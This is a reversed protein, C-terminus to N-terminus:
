TNRPPAAATAGQPASASQGPGVPATAAAPTTPATAPAAGKVNQKQRKGMTHRATRTAARKVVAAAKTAETSAQRKPNSFGFDGLVGDGSGLQSLVLTKLSDLVTNGKAIAAHQAATAEHFAKEAAVAADISAMAAQLTAIVDKPATPTGGLALTPTNGFHKQIGAIAQRNRNITKDRNTKM